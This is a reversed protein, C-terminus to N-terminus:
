RNSDNQPQNAPSKGKPRLTYKLLEQASATSARVSLVAGDAPLSPMAFRLECQGNADSTGQLLISPEAGDMTIDISAGSVPETKGRSLVEVRLVAQGDQDRPLFQRIRIEIGAGLTASGSDFLASDFSLSGSRLSEIVERHHEEVRERLMEETFGPAAALEQYSYSQRHLIRGGMYVITDIVAPSPGRDETQVHFVRDGVRVNTNFGSTVLIDSRAFHSVVM